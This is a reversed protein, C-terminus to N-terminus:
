DLEHVLEDVKRDQLVTFGQAVQFYVHVHFILISREPNDDYNWREVHPANADIWNEVYQKVQEHDLEKVHWLTWHEIGAPTYYPFMNPELFATRGMLTTAYIHEEASGYKKAIEDLHDWKRQKCEYTRSWYDISLTRRSRRRSCQNSCEVNATSNMEVSGCSDVTDRSVFSEYFKEEEDGEIDTPLYDSDSEAPTLEETKSKKNVQDDTANEVLEVAKRKLSHSSSLPHADVKNIDISDSAVARMGDQIEPQAFNDGSKTDSGSNIICMITKKRFIFVCGWVEHSASPIRETSSHSFEVESISSPSNCFSELCANVHSSKLSKVATCTM